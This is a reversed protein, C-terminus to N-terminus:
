TFLDSRKVIKENPIYLSFYMTKKLIKKEDFLLLSYTGLIFSLQAGTVSCYITLFDGHAINKKTKKTVMHPPQGM